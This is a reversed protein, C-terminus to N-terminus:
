MLIQVRAIEPRSQWDCDRILVPIFGKSSLAPLEVTIIFESALSYPSLLLIGVRATSLNARTAEDWHEGPQLTRDHFLRIEGSNELPVLWALLKQLWEQDQHAYSIYVLPPAVANM